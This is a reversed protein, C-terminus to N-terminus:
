NARFKMYPIILQIQLANLKKSKQKAPVAFLSLSRCRYNNDRNMLIIVEMVRNKKNKKNMVLTKKKLVNFIQNPIQMNEIGKVEV